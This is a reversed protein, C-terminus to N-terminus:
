INKVKFVSIHIYHSFSLVPPHCSVHFAHTKRITKLFSRANTIKGLHIDMKLLPLRFPGSNKAQIKVKKVIWTINEVGVIHVFIIIMNKEHAEFALSYGM